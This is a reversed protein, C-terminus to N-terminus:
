QAGAKKLVVLVVLAFVTAVLAHLWRGQMLLAALLAGSAMCTFGYIVGMM